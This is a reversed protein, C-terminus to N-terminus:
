HLQKMPGVVEEILKLITKACKMRKEIAAKAYQNNSFKKLSEAFNREIGVVQDRKVVKDALFLLARGNLIPKKPLLLNMHSRVLAAVSHWGKRRAWAAGIKDHDRGGKAVDHCLAAANLLEKSPLHDVLSSTGKTKNLKHLLEMAMAAVAQCHSRRNDDCAHENLFGDVATATPIVDLEKARKSILEYDDPTDMDLLLEKSETLLWATEELYKKQFARLGGDGSFDLIEQRLSATFLPPHGRRKGISPAAVPAKTEAQLAMLQQPLAVPILPVDVPLIFFASLEEPLAEVGLQISSFMGNIPSPNKVWLVQLHDLLPSIQPSHDGVVVRLDTVDNAEFLGILRELVSEQQLPLLAKPAGGMRTSNGAAIIVAGCGSM